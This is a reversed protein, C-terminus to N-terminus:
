IIKRKALTSSSINSFYAKIKEEQKIIIISKIQNKDCVIETEDVNKIFQEYEKNQKCIEYNLIFLIDNKNIIENKGIHLYM